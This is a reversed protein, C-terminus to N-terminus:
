RKQCKKFMNLSMDWDEPFDEFQHYYENLCDSVEKNMKQIIFEPKNFLGQLSCHIISEDDTKLGYALAFHGEVVNYFQSPITIKTLACEWRGPLSLPQSLYNAFSTITNNPYRKDLISANSVLDITFEQM